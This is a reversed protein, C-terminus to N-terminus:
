GKNKTEDSGVGEVDDEDRRGARRKERKMRVREERVDGAVGGHAPLDMEKKQASGSTRFLEFAVWFSKSSGLSIAAISLSREVVECPLLLRQERLM